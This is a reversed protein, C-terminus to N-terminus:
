KSLLNYLKGNLYLTERGIKQSKPGLERLKGGPHSWKQM